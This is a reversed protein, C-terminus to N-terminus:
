LISQRVFPVPRLVAAVESFMPQIKRVGFPHECARADGESVTTEIIALFPQDSRAQESTPYDENGVRRAAVM